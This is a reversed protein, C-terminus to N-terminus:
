VVTERYNNQIKKQAKLIKRNLMCKVCGFIGGVISAFVIFICSIMWILSSPVKLKNLDNFIDIGKRKWDIKDDSDSDSDSGSGDGSDEEDDSYEYNDDDDDDDDDDTYEDEGNDSDIVENQTESM